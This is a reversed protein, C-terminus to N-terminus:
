VDSDSCSIALRGFAEARDIKDVKSFMIQTSERGEFVFVANTESEAVLKLGLKSWYRVSEQLDSVNLVMSFLLSSTEAPQDAFQIRMDDNIISYIGESNAESEPFMKQLKEEMNEGAQNTKYFIFSNLDNGRKYTNVGYNYTLEFVFSNDENEWGIMTKSWNGGYPGNCSAECGEPFEEHRLIRCGM